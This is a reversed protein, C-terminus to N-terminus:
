GPPCTGPRTGVWPLCRAAGARRWGLPAWGQVLEWTLSGALARPARTCRWTRTTREGPPANGEPCHYHGAHLASLKTQLRLSQSGAARARAPPSPPAERLHCTRQGRSLARATNQTHGGEGWLAGSGLSPWSCSALSKSSPVAPPGPWPPRPRQAAAETLRTSPLARPRALGGGERSAAPARRCLGWGRAHASDGQM